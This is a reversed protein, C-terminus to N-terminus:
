ADLHERDLRAAYELSEFPDFCDSLGPHWRPIVQAIGCAGSSPNYADPTWRSEAQIQRYFTPWDLDYVQAMLKGYALLESLSICLVLLLPALRAM